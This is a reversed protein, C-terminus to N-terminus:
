DWSTPNTVGFDPPITYAPAPPGFVLRNVMQDFDYFAGGLTWNKDGTIAAGTASVGSYALNNSDLPNIYPLAQGAVGLLQSAKTKAYWAALGVLVVGGGIILADDRISM